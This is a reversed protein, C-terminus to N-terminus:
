ENDMNAFIGPNFDMAWLGHCMIAFTRVEWSVQNGAVGTVRPFVEGDTGIVMDISPLNNFAGVALANGQARRVTFSGTGGGVNGLTDERGITRNWGIGMYNVIVISSVPCKFSHGERGDLYLRTPVADETVGRWIFTPWDRQGQQALARAVADSTPEGISAMYTDTM